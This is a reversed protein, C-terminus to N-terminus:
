LWARCNKMLWVSVSCVCILSAKTNSSLLTSVGAIRARITDCRSLTSAPSAALTASPNPRLGIGFGASGARGTRVSRGGDGFILMM